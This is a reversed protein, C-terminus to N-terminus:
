RTVQVGEGVVFTTTTLKRKGRATRDSLKSAATEPKFTSTLNDVLLVFLTLEKKTASTPNDLFRSSKAGFENDHPITDSSPNPYNASKETREYKEQCV